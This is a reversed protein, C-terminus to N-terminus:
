LNPTQGESGDRFSSRNGIKKGTAPVPVEIKPYRAVERPAHM